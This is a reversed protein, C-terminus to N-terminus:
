GRYSQWTKCCANRSSKADASRMGAQFLLPHPFVSIHCCKIICQIWLIDRSNVIIPLFFCSRQKRPTGMWWCFVQLLGFAPATNAFSVSLQGILVSSCHPAPPLALSPPFGISKLPFCITHLQKVRSLLFCLCVPQFLFAQALSVTSFMSM